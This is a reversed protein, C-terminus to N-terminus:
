KVSRGLGKKEALDESQQASSAGVMAPVNDLCNHLM